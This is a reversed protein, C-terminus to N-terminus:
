YIFKIQRRKPQPIIDNPDTKRETWKFSQYPVAKQQGIVTHLSLTDGNMCVSSDCAM